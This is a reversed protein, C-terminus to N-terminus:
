KIHLAHEDTTALVKMRKLVLQLLSFITDHCFDKLLVDAELWRELEDLPVWKHDAVEDDLHLSVDAGNRKEAELDVEVLWLWTLQRDVRNGNKPGYYREYYLPYETLTGISANDSDLLDSFTSGLEERIARRTTEIPPEDRYAHEGVLAWSNPCTVMDKGRKLLLIRPQRQQLQQQHERRQKGNSSSLHSDVLAIWNGNHVMGARHAFDINVFGTSEVDATPNVPDLHSPYHQNKFQFTQIDNKKENMSKILSHTSLQVVM